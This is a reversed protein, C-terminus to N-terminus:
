TTVSTTVVIVHLNLFQCDGWAVIDLFVDIHYLINITYVSGFVYM